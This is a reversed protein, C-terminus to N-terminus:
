NTITYIIDIITSSTTNTFVFDGANLDSLTIVKTTM